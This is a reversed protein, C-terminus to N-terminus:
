GKRTRLYGIFSYSAMVASLAILIALLPHPVADSQGHSLPGLGILDLGICIALGGTIVSRRLWVQSPDGAFLDVRADTPWQESAVRQAHRLIRRSYSVYIAALAGCAVLLWALAWPWRFTIVGM